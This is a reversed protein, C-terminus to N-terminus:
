FRIGYHVALTSVNRSPQGLGGARYTGYNLITELYQLFKEVVGRSYVVGNLYLDGSNMILFSSIQQHANSVREIYLMDM